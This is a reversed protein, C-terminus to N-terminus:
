LMLFVTFKSRSLNTNESLERVDFERIITEETNVLGAVSVREEDTMPPLGFHELDLEHSQLRVQLDLRVMTKLHDETFSM